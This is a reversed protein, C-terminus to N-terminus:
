RGAFAELAYGRKRMGPVRTVEIFCGAWGRFLRLFRVGIPENFEGFAREPKGAFVSRTEWGSLGRFRGGEPHM